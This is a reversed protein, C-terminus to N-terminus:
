TGVGNSRAEAAGPGYDSACLLRIVDGLKGIQAESHAASVTIRLRATGIERLSRYLSRTRLAQLQKQFLDSM